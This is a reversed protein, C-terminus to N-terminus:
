DVCPLPTSNILPQVLTDVVRDIHPSTVISFHNSDSIVTTELRECYAEWEHSIRQAESAFHVITGNSKKMKHQQLLVHNRKLLSFRQEFADISFDNPLRNQNITFSLIIM